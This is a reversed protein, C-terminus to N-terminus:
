FISDISIIEHRSLERISIVLMTAAQDFGNKNENSLHVRLEDALNSIRNLESRSITLAAIRKFDNWRKEFEKLSPTGEFFGDQRVNEALVTLDRVESLIFSANLITAIIFIIFLITAIIFNKM